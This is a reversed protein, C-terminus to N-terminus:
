GKIGTLSIGEVFFRQLSFFILFGPVIAVVTAAMLLNWEVYFDNKFWMLGLPVTFNIKSTLYLLPNFLDNWTNRFVFIAISTLAPKSIPVIIRWLIGFTSCGDITAADELETPIAAFFQRALFIFFPPALFYPIVLPWKTNLLGLSKFILFRPIITVQHPLIMVGIVMIFVVRKGFFELRAFGYGALACTVVAGVICSGTIIVSNRYYLAFPQAQWSDIYNRLIFPRPIWQLPIKFIQDATKFSNLILWAFPVAYLIATFSLVLYTSVAAAFRAQKINLTLTL